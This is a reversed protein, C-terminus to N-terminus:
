RRVGEPVQSHLGLRRLVEAIVEDRRPLLYFHDGGFVRLAFGGVTHEEWGTAEAPTVEPDADGICAVVPTTLPPGNGPRYTEAIRYDARLIPLVVDRLARHDLVEDDTGGLRRTEAWVVDDDALHVATVRQHQPAPRGSVFLAAPRRGGAELHRAVEFAASAGLSHGFLAVPGRDLLPAVAAAAQSSLQDMGTLYPERLRDMRGPYQVAFLEVDVPLAPVWSRYFAANGGAHPFCVLRVAPQPRPRFRRLWAASVAPGIV